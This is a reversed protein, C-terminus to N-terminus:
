SNLSAMVKETQQLPAYIRFDLQSFINDKTQLKRLWDEDIKNQYIQQWLRNFRVLHDHASEQAYQVMTGTTMIFPWDSAQALLLERALQNLAEEQLGSAHPFDVAAQSMREAAMHLHRYLWDNNENLWVEHYGNSGWSSSSPEAEQLPLGLSLYESPTIPRFVEQDYDIKRFLDELWAPGEYWWHGFLEADYPAVVIPPRDIEGAVYEIQRERNFMFNGAHQALKKQAQALNYPEKADTKGTIRYYKFGTHTRIGDPHIYPGIYDLPLDFGIDRYFDRYAFDGPYGETKSWVQKSSEVDRGFAAVGHPTLLPSYTGYAPRPKAFVIGHTDVLFYNIGLEALLADIKYDYACEPLWIGKPAQGFLQTHQEVATFLQAYVAEPNTLLLPLYGHTAACTIIELKGGAALQRFAGALDARYTTFFTDYASQLRQLYHGALPSFVPDNATRKVEKDALELLSLLYHRYKGQLYEDQWMAALTPSISITLRYDIKDQELRTLSELLPLYTETLAEFLWKEEFSYTYEPHRVYPLHAHLVLSFYGKTM